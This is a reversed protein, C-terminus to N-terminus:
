EDSVRIKNALETPDLKLFSVKRIQDTKYRDQNQNFFNELKEINTTKEVQTLNDNAKYISVLREESAYQTILTTINSNFLIPTDFGQLIFGRTLDARLINEFDKESLNLRDIYLNYKERSFKGTQDQFNPNRKM